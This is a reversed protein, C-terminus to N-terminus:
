LSSRVQNTQNQNDKFKHALEEQMSITQIKNSQDNKKQEFSQRKQAEISNLVHSAESANIQKQIKRHEREQAELQQM